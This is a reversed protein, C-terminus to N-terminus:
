PMFVFTLFAGFISLHVAANLITARGPVVTLITVIFTTFLLVLETAGLGFYMPYNAVISYIAMIPITLGLAAIISGYALNLSTQIRGFKAARVAALFEPMLVLLAISLAVVGQPLGAETVASKTLPSSVKALGVVSVLSVFLLGVSALARKKSVLVQAPESTEPTNALEPPIFFNIHRGTQATVFVIYLILAMAAVIVLQGTTFTAGPSSTTFSPFVLALVGMAILISFAGGMGEANFKAFKHKSTRVLLAFGVIGNTAIMVAAFVTDRALSQSTAPNDIILILIMGVEIVTVAVALILSGFPEGVKLAVVEAHQVAVYIAFGLVVFTGVLGLVELKAGWSLLLVALAVPPLAYSFIGLPKYESAM